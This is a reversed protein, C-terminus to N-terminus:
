TPLGTKKKDSTAAFITKQKSGIFHKIIVRQKQHSRVESRQGRALAFVTKASAEQRDIRRM